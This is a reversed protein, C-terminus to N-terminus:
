RVGLDSLEHVEASSLNEGYLMATILVTEKCIDSMTKNM